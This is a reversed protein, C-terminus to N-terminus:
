KFNYAFKNMPGKWEGFNRHCICSFSGQLGQPVALM